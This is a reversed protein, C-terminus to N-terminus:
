GCCPTAARRAWCPGLMMALLDRGSPM